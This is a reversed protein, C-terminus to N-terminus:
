LWLVMSSVLSCFLRGNLIMASIPVLAYLRAKGGEIFMCLVNWM